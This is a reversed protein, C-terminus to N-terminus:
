DKDLLGIRMYQMVGSKFLFEYEVTTKYTIVKYTSGGESTPTGILEKVKAPSMDLSVGMPLQGAFRNFTYDGLQYKDNYFYIKKIEGLDNMSVAIGHMTWNVQTEYDNRFEHSDHDGFQGFQSKVDTDQFTKGLLSFWDASPAFALFTIAAFLLSFTRM